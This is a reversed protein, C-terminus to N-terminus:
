LNQLPTKNIRPFIQSETIFIGTYCDANKQTGVDGGLYLQALGVAGQTMGWPSGRSTTGRKMPQIEGESLM